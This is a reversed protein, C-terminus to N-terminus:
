AILRHNSFFSAISNRIACAKPTRVTELRRQLQGQGPARSNHRYERLVRQWAWPSRAQEVTGNRCEGGDQHSGGGGRRLLRIDVKGEIPPELPWGGGIEKGDVVPMERSNAEINRDHRALPRKVRDGLDCRAGERHAKGVDVAKHAEKILVGACRHDRRHHDIVVRGERDHTADALADIADFVELPRGEARRRGIPCPRLERDKRRHVIDIDRGHRDLRHAKGGTFRHQGLAIDIGHGAEVERGVQRQRPQAHGLIVDGRDQERIM